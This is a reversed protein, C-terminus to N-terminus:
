LEKVKDGMSEETPQKFPITDNPSTFISKLTSIESTVFRKFEEFDNLLYDVKVRYTESFDQSSETQTEISNVYDKIM